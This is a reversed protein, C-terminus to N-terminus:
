EPGTKRKAPITVGKYPRLCAPAAQSIATAVGAVPKNVGSNVDLAFIGLAPHSKKSDDDREVHKHSCSRKGFLAECKEPDHKLGSAIFHLRLTILFRGGLGGGSGNPEM